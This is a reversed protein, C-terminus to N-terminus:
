SGFTTKRLALTPQRAGPISRPEYAGSHKTLFENAAVGEGQWRQDNWEDFVFLGGTMLRPHLLELIDRTSQYLDTDCYVFSFTLSANDALLRPLTDEILGQHIDIDDGLEYLEIMRKLEDLDGRYDGANERADGDAPAFNTLGDFSDFCHCLKSGHPDYIKLLKALFLLNAGRWSGFEAVHGPVNLTSKLLDAIAM